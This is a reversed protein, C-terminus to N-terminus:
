ARGRRRQGAAVRTRVEAPEVLRPVGRHLLEGSSDRFRGRGHVLLLKPGGELRREPDARDRIGCPLNRAVRKQGASLRRRVEVVHVDRSPIEDGPRRPRCQLRGLERDLVGAGSRNPKPVAKAARSSQRDGDVDSLPRAKLMGEPDHEPRERHQARVGEAGAPRHEAREGSGRHPDEDACAEHDRDAGMFDNEPSHQRNRNQECGVSGLRDRERGALGAERDNEEHEEADNLRGAPPDIENAAPWAPKV